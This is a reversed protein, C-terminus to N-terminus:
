YQEKLFTLERLHHVNCLAHRCATYVGYSSWGDYVSVGQFDPLIGIAELAARGRKAHIAYHTLRSTSTVHAWALKGGRRVGTEDHHLAPAQTLAAKIHREIPALIRAAQAIWSVLTGRALRLRWLDTLLQQVRGLPLQQQEVLYVVL